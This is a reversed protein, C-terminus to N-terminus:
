KKKSIRINTDDRIFTVSAKLNYSDELVKLITSLIQSNYLNKGMFLDTIESKQKNTCVTDFYINM